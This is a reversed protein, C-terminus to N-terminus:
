PKAPRPATHKRQRIPKLRDPPPREPDFDPWRADTLNLEGAVFQELTKRRRRAVDKLSSVLTPHKEYIKLYDERRLLMIWSRATTRATFVSPRGDILSEEGFVGGPDLLMMIRQRSPNAHGLEITGSMLLCLTKSPTGQEVIVEDDAVELIEFRPFLEDREEPPFLRFFGSRVLMNDIVREEVLRLMSYSSAPHETFLEQAQERSLSAVTVDTTAEVQTRMGVVGTFSQEGILAGPRLNGVLLPPDDLSSVEAEGAILLKLTDNGSGTEALVTGAPLTQIRSPAAHEDLQTPTLGEFLVCRKLVERLRPEPAVALAAVKELEAAPLGRSVGSRLGGLLTAPERRSLVMFREQPALTSPRRHATGPAAARPAHPTGEEQQGDWYDIPPPPPATGGTGGDAAEAFADIDIEHTPERKFDHAQQRQIPRLTSLPPPLPTADVEYDPEAVATVRGLRIQGKSAARALISDRSVSGSPTKGNAAPAAGSEPTASSEPTAAPRREGEKIRAVLVQLLRSAGPLDKAYTVAKKCAALAHRDQGQKVYVEAARFYSAGSGELKGISKQLSGLECWLDPYDPDSALTEMYLDAAQDMKDRAILKKARDRLKEVDITM